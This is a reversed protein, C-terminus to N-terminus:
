YFEYIYIHEMLSVGFLDAQVFITREKSLNINIKGYRNLHSM